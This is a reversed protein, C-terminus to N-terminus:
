TGSSRASRRSSSTACSASSLTYVYPRRWTCRTSAQQGAQRWGRGNAPHALLEVQGRQRSAGTSVLELLPIGADAQERLTFGASRLEPARYDASLLRAVTYGAIMLEKPAYDAAKWELVSFGAMKM